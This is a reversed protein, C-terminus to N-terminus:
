LYDYLNGITERPCRDLRWVWGNEDIARKHFKNGLGEKYKLKELAEGAKGRAVGM